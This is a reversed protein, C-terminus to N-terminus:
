PRRAAPTLTYQENSTDASIEAAGVTTPSNRRLTLAREAYKVVMTSPLTATDSTAPLVSNRSALSATSVTTVPTQNRALAKVLLGSEYVRDRGSISPLNRHGEPQSRSHTREGRQRRIHRTDLTVHATPVIVSATM